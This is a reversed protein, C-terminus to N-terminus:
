DDGQIVHYISKRLNKIVAFPVNTNLTRSPDPDNMNLLSDFKIAHGEPNEAIWYNLLIGADFETKRLTVKSDNERNFKILSDAVEEHMQINDEYYASLVRYRPNCSFLLLVLCTFLINRAM